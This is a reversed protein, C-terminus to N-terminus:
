PAEDALRQIVGSPEGEQYDDGQREGADVAVARAANGSFWSPCRSRRLPM